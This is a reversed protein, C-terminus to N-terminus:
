TSGVSRQGTQGSLLDFKQASGPAPTFAVEPTGQGQETGSPLFENWSLILGTLVVVSIIAANIYKRPVKIEDTKM